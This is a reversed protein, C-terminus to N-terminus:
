EPPPLEEATSQAPATPTGQEAASLLEQQPTQVPASPVAESPAPQAMAEPPPYALSLRLGDMLQHINKRSVPELMAGALFALKGFVSAEGQWAIRTGEPLPSLDFGTSIAIQSGVAKGRGQYQARTPRVAQSLEMKIEVMGRINGVGVRVKVTFHTADEVSMSEFDPLLQGFKNADCLFDYVEDPTRPSTFEGSFTIAV